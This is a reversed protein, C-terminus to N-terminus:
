KSDSIETLILDTLTKFEADEFAKSGNKFATVTLYTIGILVMSGGILIDKLNNPAVAKVVIDKYEGTLPNTVGGQKFKIM